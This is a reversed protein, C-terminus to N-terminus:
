RIIECKPLAKQLEAVGKRTVQTRNLNLWSLTKLGSLEKLGEDTVQTFGLHLSTLNILGALEKLGADTVQTGVLNLAFPSEPAPLKAVVGEKWPQFKFVPVSGADPTSTWTLDGSKDVKIWGTGIAVDTWAKVVEKPLPKPLVKKAPEQASVVSGVLVLLVSPLVRM